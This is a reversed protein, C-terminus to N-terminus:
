GQPAYGSRKRGGEAIEPQELLGTLSLSIKRDVLRMGLVALEHAYLWIVYGHSIVLGDLGDVAVAIAEQLGLVVVDKHGDLSSEEIGAITGLVCSLALGNGVGEGGLGNGLEFFVHMPVQRKKDGLPVTKGGSSRIFTVGLQVGEVPEIEQGEIYNAVKSESLREAHKFPSLIKDLNAFSGIGRNGIRWCDLNQVATTFNRSGKATERLELGVGLVERIWEEALAKCGHLVQSTDCNGADRCTEIALLLVV